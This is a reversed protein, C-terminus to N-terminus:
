PFFANRINTEDQQVDYYAEQVIDAGPKLLRMVIKPVYEKSRPM